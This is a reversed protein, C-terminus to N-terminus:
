EENLIDKISNALAEYKRLKAIENTLRDIVDILIFPNHVCKNIPIRNPCWPCIIGKTRDLEVETSM